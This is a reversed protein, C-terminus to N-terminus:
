GNQAELFPKERVTIAYEIFDRPQMMQFRGLFELLRRELSISVLIGSFAPQGIETQTDLKGPAM